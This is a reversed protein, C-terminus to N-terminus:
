RDGTLIYKEIDLEIGEADAVRKMLLVLAENEPRPEYGGAEAERVDALANSLVEVLLSQNV